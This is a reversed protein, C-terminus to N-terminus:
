RDMPDRDTSEAAEQHALREADSMTRDCDECFWVRVPEGVNCGGLVVEGRKAAEILEPGPYGYVVRRSRVVGCKSCRLKSM